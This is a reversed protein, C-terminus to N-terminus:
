SLWGPEEAAEAAARLSSCEAESARSGTTGPWTVPEAEWACGRGGSEAACSTSEAGAAEAGWAAPFREPCTLVRWLQGSTSAEYVSVPVTVKLYM